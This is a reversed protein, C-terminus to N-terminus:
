QITYIESYKRKNPWKELKSTKLSWLPERRVRKKREEQDRRPRKKGEAKNQTSLKQVAENRATVRLPLWLDRIVWVDRFVPQPQRLRHFCPRPRRHRRPLHAQIPEQCDAPRLDCPLIGCSPRLRPNRFKKENVRFVMKVKKRVKAATKPSRTPLRFM